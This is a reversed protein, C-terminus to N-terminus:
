RQIGVLACLIINFLKDCDICCTRGPLCSILKTILRRWIYISYYNIMYISSCIYAVYGLDVKMLSIFCVYRCNYKDIITNFVITYIDINM